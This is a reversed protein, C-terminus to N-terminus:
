AFDQNFDGNFESGGTPLANGKGTAVKYSRSAYYEVLEADIAAPMELVQGTFLDADPMLGNAACVDFLGSVDGLYSLLVDPLLESSGVVVRM